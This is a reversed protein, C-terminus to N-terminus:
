EYDRQSIGSYLLYKSRSSDSALFTTFSRYHIYQQSITSLSFYLPNSGGHGLSLDNLLHKEIHVISSPIM